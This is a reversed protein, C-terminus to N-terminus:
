GKRTPTQAVQVTYSDLKHSLEEKQREQKDSLKTNRSDSSPQPWRILFPPPLASHTHCASIPQINQRYLNTKNIDYSSNMPIDTTVPHQSDPYVGDSQAKRGVGLLGM